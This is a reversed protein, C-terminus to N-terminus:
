GLGSVSDADDAGLGKAFAAAGFNRVLEQTVFVVSKVDRLPHSSHVAAGPSLVSLIPILLILPRPLPM